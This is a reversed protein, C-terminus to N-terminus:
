SSEPEADHGGQDEQGQHRDEGRDQHEAASPEVFADVAPHYVFDLLGGSAAGFHTIEGEVPRTKLRGDTRHHKVALLLWAFRWEQANAGSPAWTAAQLCRTLTADDVPEDTFRRITRATSMVTWVDTAPGNM